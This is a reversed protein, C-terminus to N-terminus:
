GALRRVPRGKEQAERLCANMKAGLEGVYPRELLTEHTGTIDETIFKGTVLGAWASRYDLARPRKAPQFLAVTGPYPKPVYVIAARDQVEDFADSEDEPKRGENLLRRGNWLLRETLARWKERGPLSLTKRLGHSFRGFELGLKQKWGFLVPNASHLMVVLGVECGAAMLQSAVEFAVIGSTCYGGIFYPGHPQQARIIKVLRSGIDALRPADSLEQKEALDLLVCIFPQDSGIEAVLTRAAHPDSLWFFPPRSGNAQLVTARSQKPAALPNALLTAMSELTSAQFASSMSLRVGFADEIRRLLRAFLLSHGGLNFFDDQVGVSEVRLVNKWIDALKREQDNRPAVFALRPATRDPEPLANRDVKANPTTPLAPMWVYRSPIMYDPLSQRLFQRLDAVDPVPGDRKVLYACLGQEGSPDPWAKLAVAVLAPHKALTAEIEELEIRFGRIKVQQDNRGLCEITSDARYRALDGTRYIRESPAAAVAVFRERTLDDRKYYGRAVGAGGICLEGTVGIPVPNKIADLIYVRTNAIPRGIPVSRGGREVKYVTSWITTETPGYMNWVEDARDLLRDALDRPLQEGGCLIKLGKKGTWKTEILARWTAPTAQIITCGSHEILRALRAPDSVDDKKAIIVRGGSLLPTFLELAAIDFSLTTVALLADTAGCGPKQKMSSLLNVVARHSIGVGKPRGTSGSTYIVYALDEGSLHTPLVTPGNEASCISDDCFVIKVDSKPLSEVLFPQTLLLTPQADELIMALRKQPFAPDLPLYAGGTKLIALLSIMMDFSREVCIAVLAGTTVGQERLRNALANAKRNLDRYTLSEGDCEVATAHPSHAAQDEFLQHITARPIETATDNWETLLQRTEKPTLLPLRGLLCDPDAVVAELITRWHGIMRRITQADFLDTSYLFRGIMGEPREDLELYLDFKSAGVTVDMQTLDWGQTFAPAPPEVSFLVQFLPHASLDRKPQIERVIRDFPVDSASLAGAVTDRVQALFERFRLGSLPRTRLVLSNLFYGVVNQLEPRRRTDTVGGIIMDEQGSYRHLLVKFAALLTMYLTLGENRSFTKLAETLPGSLSFTEMSGRYTPVSPRPRDYPLQLVPLPGHLTQRWYDTQKAVSDTSMQRERWVAYDGYQLEPRDLQPIRGSAYADYTASLEPVVIRYIAVGDFIIHHLTLHLRHDDEAIKFVRARFLPPVALDIPTRADETALRLAEAERDAAQFGTLDVLPLEVFLDDHVVPAVDGDVIQFSTRWAEHRRLVENFSKEMLGLDFSGKRHITIPENYLPQSPAMSSHLWVNQQELSIPVREHALRKTVVDVQRKRAVGGSLMKELLRRKADPLDAGTAINEAAM